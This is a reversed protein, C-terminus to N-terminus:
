RQLLVCYLKMITNDFVASMEMETVLDRREAPVFILSSAYHILSMRLMGKRATIGRCVRM